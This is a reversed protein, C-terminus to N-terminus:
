IPALLWPYEGPSVLEDKCRSIVRLIPVLDYAPEYLNQYYHLPLKELNKELLALSGTQDLVHVESTRNVGSPWKTLLELGFAHFTGIWMEIAADPNMASLRERMEEAAKNSFTLALVASSRTGRDLLHQVRKTLTRTKGTGPGADVLVPGKDWVAAAM